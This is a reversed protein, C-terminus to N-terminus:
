LGTRTSCMFARNPHAVDAPLDFLHRLALILEPM